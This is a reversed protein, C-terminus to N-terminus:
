LTILENRIFIFVTYQLCCVGSARGILTTLSAAPASDLFELCVGETRCLSRLNCSLNNFTGVCGLLMISIQHIFFKTDDNRFLSKIRTNQIFHGRRDMMM